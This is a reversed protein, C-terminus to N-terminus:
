LLDDQFIKWDIRFMKNWDSNECVDLDKEIDSLIGPVCVKGTFLVKACGNEV